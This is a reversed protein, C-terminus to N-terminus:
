VAYAFAQRKIAKLRVDLTIQVVIAPRYAPLLTLVSCAHLAPTEVEGSRWFILDRGLSQMALRGNSTFGAVSENHGSPMNDCPSGRAPLRLLVPANTESSLNWYFCSGM